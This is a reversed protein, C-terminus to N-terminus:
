KSILRFELSGYCKSFYKLIREGDGARETIAKKPNNTIVPLAKKENHCFVNEWKGDILAQLRKM